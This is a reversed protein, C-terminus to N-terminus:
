EASNNKLVEKIKSVVIDSNSKMQRNFYTAMFMVNLFISVLKFGVQIEVACDNLLVIGIVFSLLNASFLGLSSKAATWFLNRRAESLIKAIEKKQEETANTLDFDTM